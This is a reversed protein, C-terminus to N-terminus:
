RETVLSVKHIDYMLGKYSSRDDSPTFTGEDIKNSNYAFLDDRQYSPLEVALQMVMTLATRYKDKREDENNTERAQEIVLALDDLLKYETDYKGGANLKIQPYGWNKVSSANSDKHYVQYMDPDITSGWAAAWVTLSGISLKKLANADTKVDISFGVENLIESAHLLASYAPHDTEDGAITFTYKLMNQGKVYADGSGETYGADEVLRSLFEKQEAETLKQGATKRKEAIFARYDQNVYISNWDSPIEGGIYPYYATAGKPYAWNSLSMSRHIISAGTKYYNVCEQTNISHMIAQRIKLDPVKGANIGIYGYGATPIQEYAYGNKKMGNLQDITEQKANPEAFDVGGSTLMNMINSNSVVQYRLKKIKPAGGIYNENREFYIMNNARFDGRKVNETGGAAKSAVYPGAGVPVGSKEEANVVEQMFTQSSEVGFHEEYDTLAIQEENSYYYMPAVAFAFNWIAKPDVKEIEISLVENGEKVAHNYEYGDDTKYTPANYVTGNVTVAKDKNAFKIGSVNKYESRPNDRFHTEMEDNVLYTNMTVATNWFQLLDEFKDPVQWEFVANIAEEKTWNKHDTVDKVLISSLAGNGGNEKKNWSIVGENFLFVEVDTTFLGKHVVGNADKFTTDEYSDLSASYDEELEEKFLELTKDYDNVLNEVRSKQAEPANEAYEELYDRLSDETLVENKHEEKIDSVADLLADTRTTAADQFQLMFSDQESELSEGTRYEQLGVIETSYITSAGTYFNDLYVYLNFLVDKMTLPSGNSFKVDNKLVFYYTTRHTPISDNDKNTRDIVNGSADREVIQLDKVVVNENDGWTYKGDKDNGLMTIQTQGVIASDTGSTSFFPNFVGDVELTSVILPDNENDFIEKKGCDCGWMCLVAALCAAVAGVLVKRLSGSRM